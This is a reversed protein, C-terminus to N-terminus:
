SRPAAAASGKFGLRPLAARLARLVDDIDADSCYGMHGIRFIKGELQGQGGAVVVKEEERLVKTIKKGDVGEPVKVATVTNSAYREDALLSLGLAKVGERTRKGLREHRAFVNPLGDKLIADLAPVLGFMVAVAPTWPTEGKDQSTKHKMLDFYFRPMKAQAYAKWALESMSVFAFGPPVMWGKQSGSVAVDIKWEDTLLPIASVGSVSDVILLKGFEDKVVKSISKIDNTVGTSTENHTVLVAKIGADKGLAERVQQPDAAKGWPVSLRTVQAGYKEAVQAFRDGFSGITVALVKDGPSLTNVVAAEMGGTGSATVILVDNRTQFVQKLGASARNILDKFEPGRHNIM